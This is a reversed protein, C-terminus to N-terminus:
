KAPTFTWAQKGEADYAALAFEARYPAVIIFEGSLVPNTYLKGGVTKEWVIKGDRDLALFSGAETVVYVQDGLVLPSAVVPGDPKVTDWNQRGSAIDMSYLNGTLDGFYLTGDAIAPAGWIWDAATFIAENEGSSKVFQINSSFSGVYVGGDGAAPSGPTAGGLDVPKGVLSNGAPDIIHLHHDLSTVYIYGGDTVPASWLAGGLELPESVQKGDMGLIYLFGDSNPAYITEQFVLPSGVWKGRADIFPAAWNDKGTAPDISVLEHNNGESGAILQGDATLVPNAYFVINSDTEAPYRWVEQGSAVDVAYIHSGSALYAREGDAALGPWTNVLSARSACASLLFAGFAILLVLYIKKRNM